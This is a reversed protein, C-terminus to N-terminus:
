EGNEEAPRISPAYLAHVTRSPAYKEVSDRCPYLNGTRDRWAVPEGLIHPLAAALTSRMDSLCVSKGAEPLDDFSTDTFNCWERAAAEVAEPPINM